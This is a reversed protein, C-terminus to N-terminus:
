GGLSGFSESFDQIRRILSLVITQFSQFLISPNSLTGSLYEINKVGNGMNCNSTKTISGLVDNDCVLLSFSQALYLEFKYAFKAGFNASIHMDERCFKDDINVLLDFM